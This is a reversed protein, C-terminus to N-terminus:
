GLEALEEVLTDAFEEVAEYNRGSVLLNDRRDVRVDADIWRGGANRIDTKLSDVAALTRGRIVDAEILTWAGHCIVGVPKREAFVSRVFEVAEDDRRLLDPNIYGGPLVLVDYQAPDAKGIPSDSLVTEAPDEQDFTRVDGGEPTLHVVEAGEDELRERPYALEVHEVGDNATLIAVRLESLQM